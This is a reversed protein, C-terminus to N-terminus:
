LIKRNGGLKKQRRLQLFADSLVTENRIFKAGSAYSASHLRAAVQCAQRRLFFYHSVNVSVCTLETVVQRHNSHCRSHSLVGASVLIAWVPVRAWSVAPLHTLTWRRTSDWIILCWCIVLHFSPFYVSPLSRLSSTWTPFNSPRRATLKKVRWVLRLPLSLTQCCTCPFM